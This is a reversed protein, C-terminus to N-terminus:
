QRCAAREVDNPSGGPASAGVGTRHAWHRRAVEVGTAGTVRIARFYGAAIRTHRVTTVTWNPHVDANGFLVGRIEIGEDCQTALGETTGARAEPCHAATPPLTVVPTAIAISISSRFARAGERRDQSQSSRIAELM